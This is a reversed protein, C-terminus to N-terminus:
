FIKDDKLKFRLVHFCIMDTDRPIRYYISSYGPAESPIQVKISKLLALRKETFKYPEGFWEKVKTSPCGILDCNHLLLNFRKYFTISDNKFQQTRHEFLKTAEGAVIWSANAAPISGAIVVILLSNLIRYLLGCIRLYGGKLIGSPM